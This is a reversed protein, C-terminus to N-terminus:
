SALVKVREPFVSLHLVEVFDDFEVVQQFAAM